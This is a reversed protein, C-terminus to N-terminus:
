DDTVTVVGSRAELLDATREAADDVHVRPPDPCDSEYFTGPGYLQGYRVVVGGADLVMQELEAVAGGREDPLEWAISQAVFRPAKAAAAADLLNRTGERRMRDNAAEFEHLREREDPLDTLEDVVADPRFDVLAARLAPPDFVDCVVPTGGREEILPAKEPSRTMGAVEHGAEALLPLLRTSIVGSAGAVFM